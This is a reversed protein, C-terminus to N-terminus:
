DILLSHRENIGSYAIGIQIRPLRPENKENHGENKALMAM